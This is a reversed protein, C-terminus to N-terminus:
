NTSYRPCKLTSPLPPNSVYRYIHTQLFVQLGV